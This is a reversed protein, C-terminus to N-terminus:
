DGRSAAAIRRAQDTPYVFEHGITEGQYFWVKITEPSGATEEFRVTPESTPRSREAPIAFFTSYVRSGDESLVRVVDQRGDTGALKFMYTGAPLSVV